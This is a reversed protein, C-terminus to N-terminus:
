PTPPWLVRRGLPSSTSPRTATFWSTPSAVAEQVDYKHDYVVLKIQYSEKGVKIGGSANIDEAALEMARLLGLGSPAAAGSLATGVGVILDKAQALPPFLFTLFCTIVM